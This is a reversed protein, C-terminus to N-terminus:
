DDPTWLDPRFDTQLAICGDKCILCSVLCEGTRSVSGCEVKINFIHSFLKIKTGAVDPIEPYEFSTSVNTWTRIMPVCDIELWCCGKNRNEKETM